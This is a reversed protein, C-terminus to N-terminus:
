SPATTSRGSGSAVERWFSAWRRAGDWGVVFRGRRSGSVIEPAYGVQVGAQASFVDLAKSLDGAPLNFEYASDMASMSQGRADQLPLWTSIAAAVAGWMMSRRFGSLRMREIRM